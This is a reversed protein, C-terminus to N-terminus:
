RAWKNDKPRSNNPNHTDTICNDESIYYNPGPYKAYTEEWDFTKPATHLMMQLRLGIARVRKKASKNVINLQIQRPPTYRLPLAQYGIIDMNLPLGYEILLENWPAVSAYPPMTYVFFDGADACTDM